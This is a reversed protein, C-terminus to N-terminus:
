VITFLKSQKIWTTVACFPTLHNSNCEINKRTMMASMAMDGFELMLSEPKV